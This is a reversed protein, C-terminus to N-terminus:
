IKPRDPENRFHDNFIKLYRFTMVVHVIFLAMCLALFGLVMKLSPILQKMMEDTMGEMGSYMEVLKDFFQENPLVYLLAVIMIGSFLLTVIANVKIWDKLRVRLFNGRAMVHRAFVSTLNTYILVALFVFLYLLLAPQLGSALFSMLVVFLFFIALFNDVFGLVRYFIYKKGPKEQLPSNPIDNM